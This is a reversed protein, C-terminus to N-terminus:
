NNNVRYVIDEINFIEDFDQANHWEEDEPSLAIVIPACAGMYPLARLTNYDIFEYAEQLLDFFRNDESIEENNCALENYEEVVEPYDDNVFEEAMRDYDYVTRGDATIGIISDDFSPCDLVISDEYGNDSIEKRLDENVM